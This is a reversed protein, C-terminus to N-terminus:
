QFDVSRRSLQVHGMVSDSPRSQFSPISIKASLFKDMISLCEMLVALRGGPRDVVRSENRYIGVLGLFVPELFWLSQLLKQLSFNWPPSHLNLHPFYKKIVRILLLWSFLDSINPCSAKKELIGSSVAFYDLLSRLDPFLAISFYIGIFLLVGIFILCRERLAGNWDNSRIYLGAWALFFIEM